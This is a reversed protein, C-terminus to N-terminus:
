GSNQLQQAFGSDPIFVGTISSRQIKIKTSPQHIPQAPHSCSKARSRWTPPAKGASVTDGNFEGVARSSKRDLASMATAPVGIREFEQRIQLSREMGIRSIDDTLVRDAWRSIEIKDSCNLKRNEVKMQEVNM